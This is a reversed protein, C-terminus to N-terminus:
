FPSQGGLMKKPSESFDLSAEQQMCGVSVSFEEPLFGKIGLPDSPSPQQTQQQLAEANRQSHAQAWSFFRM